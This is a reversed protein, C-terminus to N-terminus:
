RTQQQVRASVKLHSKWKSEDKVTDVLQETFIKRLSKCLIFLASEQMLNLYSYDVTGLLFASGNTDPLIHNQRYPSKPIELGHALKSRLEYLDHLVDKVRTSPQQGTISSAPFILTNEGLFGKIRDEFQHINGGAMFLMDLGMVWFLTSLPVNTIQQGHELLLIPNQLRIIKETFAKNVGEYVPDFDEAFRQHRLYTIKGIITNNLLPFHNSGINDFGQPTHRFKLYLNKGGSPCIIQVCYMAWHVKECLDNGENTPDQVEKGVALWYKTEMLSHRDHESIFDKVISQEWVIPNIERVCLGNAFQYPQKVGRIPTAVIVETSSPVTM